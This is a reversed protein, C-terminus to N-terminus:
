GPRTPRQRRTPRGRGRARRLPGGSGPWAAPAVRLVRWTPAIRYAGDHTELADGLGLRRLASVATHLRQDRTEPSLTEDPWLAAALSERSVPDPGAMAAETLATALARILPRKSLDVWEPGARFASGDLAVAVVPAPADRRLAATADLLALARRVRFSYPAARTAAERPADPDTGGIALLAAFAADEVTGSDTPEVSLPAGGLAGLASRLAAHMGREFTSGLARGADDLDAAADPFRGLEILLLARDLLTEQRERLASRAFLSLAHTLEALSDARRGTDLHARGRELHYLADFMRHTGASCAVGEDLRLHGSAADGLHIALFARTLHVLCATTVSHAPLAALAGALRADDAADCLGLARRSSIQACLAYARLEFSREALDSRLVADALALLTPHDWRYYHVVGFAATVMSASAGGRALWAGARSVLSDILAADGSNAGAVVTVQAAGLRVPLPVSEIDPRDLLDRTWATATPGFGARQFLPVLATATRLAHVLPTVGDADLGHRILGLYLDRDRAVQAAIPAPLEHSFPSLHPEVRALLATAIAAHGEALQSDDARSLAFAKVVDLVRYRTGHAGHEPALLSYRSLVELVDLADAPSGGAVRSALDLDFSGSLLALRSLALRRDAALQDWAWEVAADRSSRRLPGGGEPLSLRLKADLLAALADPTVLHARAAALELALPLGDLRAALAQLAARDDHWPSGAAANARAALLAVAPSDLTDFSLPQVGLQVEEPRVLAVRTTVLLQLGPARGLLEVLADTAVAALQEFNDLVLLVPGQSARSLAAAVALHPAARDSDVVTLGLAASMAMSLEALSQAGVADCYAVARAGDDLGRAVELAVRSKGVGGLGTLSVLRAGARLHGQVLAVLADRGILSTPPQPLAFM